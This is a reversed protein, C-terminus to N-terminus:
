RERWQGHEDDVQEARITLVVQTPQTPGGRASESRHGTTEVFALPVYVDRALPRNVLFDAERVQKVTGVAIGDIGVVEMGPQVQGADFTNAPLVEGVFTPSPPLTLRNDVQRVGPVGRAYMAVVDLQGAEPVTGTLTVVGDHVVMEVRSADLHMDETLQERLDHRIEADSREGFSQM